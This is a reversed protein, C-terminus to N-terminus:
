EAKKETNAFEKECERSLIKYMVSGCISCAGRAASRGNKMKVLVPEKVECPLKCRLCYAEIKM